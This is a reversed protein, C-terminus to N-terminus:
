EAVVRNRGREKALYLGKDARGLLHEFSGDEPANTTVGLSVTFEVIDGVEDVVGAEQVLHRLREAIVVAGELDTEPLLVVFEEGGARGVTDQTRMNFKLIDAVCRIVKDGVPHGRTDNISKFRDIDIMLVSFRNTYRSARSFEREGADMLARRNAIGTLPDTRALRSMEDRQRLISLHSWFVLMSLVILAFYGGVLQVSRRRWERLANEKDFGVITALPINEMRSIGLYRERGDLPSLAAFSGSAGTESLNPTNAPLPWKQGIVGALPPNRALVVMGSDIVALVDNRTVPFSTIWKEVHALDIAALVGGLVKGEPSTRFRSVIISPRRNASKEASVYQLYMKDEVVVSRDICARQNSRFGIVKRDAAAVFVCEKGFLSIGIVGPVTTRKRELWASTEDSKERSSEIAAITASTIKENIDRLVYDAALVSSGLWRSMLQSQQHAMELRSSEIRVYGESLDEYLWVALGLLVLFLGGYVGHRALLRKGSLTMSVM